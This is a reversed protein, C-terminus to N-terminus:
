GCRDGIPVALPVARPFRRQLRLRRRRVLPQVARSRRCSCRPAAARCQHASDRWRGRRRRRIGVKFWMFQFHMLSVQLQGKKRNCTKQCYSLLQCWFKPLLLSTVCVAKGFSAKQNSLDARARDDAFLSAHRESLRPNTFM